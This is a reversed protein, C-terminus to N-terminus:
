AGIQSWIGFAIIVVGTGIGVWKWFAKSKISIPVGFLTITEKAPDIVAEPEGDGDTDIIIAKKVEVEDM